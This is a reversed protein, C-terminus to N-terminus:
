LLLDMGVMAVTGDNDCTDTLVRPFGMIVSNQNRILGVSWRKRCAVEQPLYRHVAAAGTSPLRM